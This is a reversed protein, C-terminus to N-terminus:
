KKRRKRDTFQDAFKSQCFRKNKLPEKPQKEKYIKAKRM